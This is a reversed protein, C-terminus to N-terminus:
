FRYEDKLIGIIFGDRGKGFHNRLCGEVQGGLKEAIRVVRPQETIATMREKKLVTFVYHGVEALFASSWGRGAVTVHVDSEEFMNFIVGGVIEGNIEVGIATFPPVLSVNLTESVFKLVRNDSVIL